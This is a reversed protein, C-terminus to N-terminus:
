YGPNATYMAWMDAFDHGTLKMWTTTDSYTGARMEKDIEQAIGDHYHAETWYLFRAVTSYGDKYSLSASYEPLVWGSYDHVGFRVRSYDAIGETMWGPVPVDNYQQVVHTSEHTIVNWDGPNSLPYDPDFHITASKTDAYAIGDYATDIKITVTHPANPNFYAVIKPYVTFFTEIYSEKIEAGWKAFDSSTNVFRLTFGNRTISDTTGKFQTSVPQPDNKSSKKCAALAICAVFIMGMYKLNLTKM